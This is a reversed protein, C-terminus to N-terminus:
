DDEDNDNDNGGEDKYADEGYNNSYSYGLYREREYGENSGGGYPGPPDPFATKVKCYPPERGGGGSTQTQYSM